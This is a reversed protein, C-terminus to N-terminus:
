RVNVVVVSQCVLRRTSLSLSASSTSPPAHRRTYRWRLRPGCFLSQQLLAAALGPSAHLARSLDRLLRPGQAWLRHLPLVRPHLGYERQRLQAPKGCVEPVQLLPVPVSPLAPFLFPSDLHLSRVSSWACTSSHIACVKQAHAVACTHAFSTLCCQASLICERETSTTLPTHMTCHWAIMSTTMSTRTTSHWALMSTTMPTRTTSQWWAMSLEPKEVIRFKGSRTWTRLKNDHQLLEDDSKGTAMKHVRKAGCFCTMQPTTNVHDPRSSTRIKTLRVRSWKFVKRLLKTWYHLDPSIRGRIQCIEIETSGITMFENKEQAIGLDTYTSRLVGTYNLPIPFSEEEPVYLQVRPEILHRYIFDGQISWFDKRTEADDKTEEPPFEEGVGHSERSFNERRVTSERRLTPKQFEYDRGSLKPSGDAM